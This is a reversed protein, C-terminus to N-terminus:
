KVVYKKGNRIVIGKYSSDVRVGMTNYIAADSNAGETAIESIGTTTDEEFSLMLKAAGSSLNLYAKYQDLSSGSALPYFGLEGDVKNLVYITYSETATYAGDYTGILANASALTYDGSLVSPSLTSSATGSILVGETAPVIGDTVEALYVTSGSVTATYVTAGTSSFDVADPYSFSRWGTSGIEVSLGSTSYDLAVNVDDMDVTQTSADSLTLTVDDGSFTIQTVTQTATSGSITVTQKTDASASLCSLVLCGLVVLFKNKNIM